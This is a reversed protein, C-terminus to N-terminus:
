QAVRMEAARCHWAWATQVIEDLSVYKPEWGLVQRAKAASAVLMPPDGPRRDRERRRVTRGSVRAVAEIVERVSHGRGTGINFVNSAGGRNLYELAQLHAMALDNVHVYDRVATGDPTEYDTGYIEIQPRVQLAADFCLPILHPEPDHVEGLEGGPDAGAANFYRLAVSQFGHAVGYWELVKEIFLKSDGYPNTPNRPHEESVPLSHPTGYVTCSSSFVIRKVGKALMARLLTLSNVVNNDFYKEPREMSEGVYANAAFHIVSDIRYTALVDCVLEYDALTGEVFEGRVAWRHGTSLNDLVIPQYGNSALSKTTHSGIYGAGGTVLINRM